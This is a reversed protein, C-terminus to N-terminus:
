EPNGQLDAAKEGGEEGAPMLRVMAKRVQDMLDDIDKRSYGDTLIPEGIRMKFTGKKIRFSGKPNIDRSNVIAIPVLDCGSMVALHFGGKKFPQLRGDKSRTGEPFILVSAGKRVRAAAEKMSALAKRPDARDIAIYRARRMALGLIPIKMLEQKLIFKFHVPLHALLAFIDFASQHNSLYIRPGRLDLNELGEVQVRVGCVWLIIKAWPTAAYCHVLRGTRDFLSVIIAWLAFVITHIGIFVNLALYRIM